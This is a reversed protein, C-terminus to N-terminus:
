GSLGSNENEQCRELVTVLSDGYRALRVPGFGPPVAPPEDASHEIVVLAGPAALGLRAIAGVTPAILGAGYPPDALIIDFESGALRRLAGPLVGRVVVAEALGATNRVLFRLVASDSEVFVARVAGRSLAELGLAGGGAFLDLVRAGRVREGLMNFIGQRTIDKTPRLGRRPYAITRGKLRGSRVRM